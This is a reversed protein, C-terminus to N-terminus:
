PPGAYLTDLPSPRFLIDTMTATTTMSIYMTPNTEMSTHLMDSAMTPAKSKSPLLIKKATNNVRMVAATMMPPIFLTESMVTPITGIMASPHNRIHMADMMALKPLRPLAMVEMKALANVTGDVTPPPTPAISIMPIFLPMRELSDPIPVMGLREDM